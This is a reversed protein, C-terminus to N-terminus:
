RDLDFRVGTNRLLSGTKRTRKSVKRITDNEYVSYM